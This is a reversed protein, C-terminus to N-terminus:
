ANACVYFCHTLAHTSRRVTIISVSDGWFSRVVFRFMVKKDVEVTNQWWHCFQRFNRRVFIEEYVTHQIKWSSNVEGETNVHLIPISLIFHTFKETVLHHQAVNPKSTGSVKWSIRVKHLATTHSNHARSIIHTISFYFILKELMHHIESYICKGSFLNIWTLRHDQLIV